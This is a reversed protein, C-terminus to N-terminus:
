LSRNLANTAAAEVCGSTVWRLASYPSILSKRSSVEYLMAIQGYGSMNIMRFLTRPSPYAVERSHVNRLAQSAQSCDDSALPQQWQRLEDSSNDLGTSRRTM